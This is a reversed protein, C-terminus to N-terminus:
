NQRRPCNTSKLASVYFSFLLSLCDLLFTSRGVLLFSKVSQHCKGPPLGIFAVAIDINSWWDCVDWELLWHSLRWDDL